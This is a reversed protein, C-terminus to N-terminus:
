GLGEVSSALLNGLVDVFTFATTSNAPVINVVTTNAWNAAPFNITHDVVDTNQIVVVITKGDQQNSFTYTKDASLIEAFVEGTQWDIDTTADPIIVTPNVKNEAEVAGKAAYRIYYKVGVNRSRTESGGTSGTNVTQYGVWIQGGGVAGTSTTYTTVTHDHARLEDAQSSGITRGAGDVDVGRGDDIGRLFEGRLDPLNFTDVGNGAGFNTGIAAFLEGYTVRSVEAGNCYLFGVPTAVNGFAMISGIESDSAIGDGIISPRYVEVHITDPDEVYFLPCSYGTIAEADSYGGLTTESLYYHEGANISVTQTEYATYAGTGALEVTASVGDYRYTDIPASGALDTTATFIIDGNQPDEYFLPLDSIATGINYDTFGNLSAIELTPQAAIYDWSYLRRNFGSEIAAFYLKGGIEHVFGASFGYSTTGNIDAFVQTPAAAVFDWKYLTYLNSNDRAFFYLENNALSPFSFNAYGLQGNIDNFLVQPSASIFDWRYLKQDSLGGAKFYLQGNIINLYRPNYNTLGAIDTFILTPSASVKDWEYLRFIGSDAAGFYVKDTSPNYVFDIPLYDTDGNIDTFALSASGTDPDYIYLRTDGGFPNARFYLKGDLIRLYSASYSPDGDLTPIIDVGNKFVRTTSTDRYYVGGFSPGPLTVDFKGFKAAKFSDVDFVDVVVYEALTDGANAQALKWEVGDHYIPDLVNFGHSVQTTEFVAGGGADGFEFGDETEKVTLAKRGFGTLDNIGTGGKTHSLTGEVEVNADETLQVKTSRRAEPLHKELMLQSVDTGDDLGPRDTTSNFYMLGKKLTAPFAAVNEMAAKFLESYKKSM